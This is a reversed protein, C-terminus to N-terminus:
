KPIRRKFNLYINKPVIGSNKGILFDGGRKIAWSKFGEPPEVTVCSIRWVDSDSVAGM